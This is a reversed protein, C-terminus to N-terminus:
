PVDEMCRFVHTLRDRYQRENFPSRVTTLDTPLHWIQRNCFIGTHSSSKGYRFVLIDGNMMPDTPLVEILEPICRLGAILLQNDNHLHWDRPYKPIEVPAMARTETMVGYVMGICDAGRGKVHCHHRWPTGMWQTLTSVLLEQKDEFFPKKM